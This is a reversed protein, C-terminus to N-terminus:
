DSFYDKLNPIYSLLSTSLSGLHLRTHDVKNDESLGAIGSLTEKVSQKASESLQHCEVANDLFSRINELGVLSILVVLINHKVLNSPHDLFGVIKASHNEQLYPLNDALFVSARDAIAGGNDKALVIVKDVIKVQEDRTLTGIDIVSLGVIAALAFYTVKNEHLGKLVYDLRVDEPILDPYMLINAIAQTDTWKQLIRILEETDEYNLDSINDRASSLNDLDTATLLTRLQPSM